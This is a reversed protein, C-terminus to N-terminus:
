ATLKLTEEMIEKLIDTAYASNKYADLCDRGLGERIILKTFNHVTPDNLITEVKKRTEESLHSLVVPERDNFTVPMKSVTYYTGGCGEHTKGHYHKPATTYLKLNCHTCKINAPM